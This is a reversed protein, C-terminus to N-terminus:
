KLQTIDVYEIGCNEAAGKDFRSDGIMLYESLPTKGDYIIKFGDIEPKLFTVDNRSAVTTFITQLKFDNLVKRIIAKSNSSWIFYHKDRNLRIFETAHKNLLFGKTNAIEYREVFSIVESLFRQGYKRVYTNVYGHVYEGRLHLNFEPDFSRIIEGVGLHWDKWDIVLKGLTDDFDFIIHNKGTTYM